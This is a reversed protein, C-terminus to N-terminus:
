ASLDISRVQAHPLPSRLIRGFLMGPQAVDVHLPDRRDGQRPREMEPLAKGIEVLEANVPLPPPEGEPIRRPEEHLGVSAIGIPFNEERTAGDTAM